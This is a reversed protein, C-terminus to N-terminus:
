KNNPQHKVMTSRRITKTSMDDDNIINVLKEKLSKDRQKCKYENAKAELCGM